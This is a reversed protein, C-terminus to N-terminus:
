RAVEDSDADPEVVAADTGDFPRFAAANGCWLLGLVLAAVIRGLSITM